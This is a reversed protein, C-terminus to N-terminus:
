HRDIVAARLVSGYGAFRPVDNLLGKHQLLRRLAPLRYCPVGAMFHHEMHYNVGNPALLLRQWWPAEVTRTNKRPDLDMLDPVAAHEGIQRLRIVLMYTTMFTLFWLWWTWGVGLAALVLYWIFQVALQKVLLGANQRRSGGVVGAAGMVIGAVLKLGTQGTLDRIVKRRFSAASVPYQQYNALDPDRDTGAYLHHLRHGEAYSSLDSLTPLACLWQGVWRNVAASSFLTGHGAEHMLVALSLQRGPLLLLVLLISLPNTWHGAIWLLAIISLWTSAVMWAALGDHKRTLRLREERTLVDSPRM